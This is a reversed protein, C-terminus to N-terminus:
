GGSVPPILHLVAGDSVPTGDQLYEADSALVCRPVLSELAPHQRVLAQKVDGCTSPGTLEPRSERAGALDVAQAHLHVTVRM